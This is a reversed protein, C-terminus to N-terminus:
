LHEDMGVCHFAVCFQLVVLHTDEDSQTAVVLAVVVFVFYWEFESWGSVIVGVGCLPALSHPWLLVHKVDVEASEGVEFM